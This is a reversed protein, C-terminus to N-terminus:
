GLKLLVDGNNQLLVSDGSVKSIGFAKNSITFSANTVDGTITGDIKHTASMQKVDETTESLELATAGHTPM